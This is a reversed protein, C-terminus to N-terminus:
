TPPNNLAESIERKAPNRPRVTLDLTHFGKKGAAKDEFFFKLGQYITPFAIKDWPIEDETVLMTESSEPTPEHHATTMHARHMLYVQSVYPVNIVCFLDDIEVTAGSEEFTERAAGQGSTENKEMFGAPFTWLGLRPEINRKCLLIKDQWQPICGVIVKPNQYQIAGCQTCVRRPLHDGEPVVTHLAGACETCFNLEPQHVSM